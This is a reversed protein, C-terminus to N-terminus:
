YFRWHLGIRPANKEVPLDGVLGIEVMLSPTNQMGCVIRLVVNQDNQSFLLRFGVSAQHVTYKEYVVSISAGTHRWGVYLRTLPSHRKRNKMSRSLETEIM